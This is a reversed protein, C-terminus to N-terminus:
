FGRNRKNLPIYAISLMFVADIIYGFINGYLAFFTKRNILKIYGILYTRKFIGTEGLIKGTPSIVGSIGSNGARAVFRENEVAPFVTMSMDQYPASTRGYWADDTISILLNAGKKSFHRVLSNFYAEYCIMSGVKLNGNKLIRFKKGRTFNGIGAGKLIHALFPFQRKLPIYEGFPVLHHKDYYSYGGSKYDFLYDRNYFHYKGNLLKLGVAGFILNIKNEKTFNMVKNWYFPYISIIYPLATEPWIVLKPKYKLSKKTLNLYIRTTNKKTIKWKQFMGINGQIMAVRVPKNRKLLKDVSYINYYGYSIVLIFVSLVFILELSAQKKSISNKFFIFHFLLYNILVIVFSLGLTGIINSVQIFPLNLYQSAGLNEWPFGTLLNSKLFEFFVWCSPILIINLIKYNNLLIRSFGAFLAFYLSLYSTLLLLALVAIYYPLSGFVHVTYTIWYLIILYSIIGSLFGYLFSEKFNKSNNVAYLLPVLAFWALFEFNFNPFLFGILIGSLCASASNILISRPIKPMMASKESRGM